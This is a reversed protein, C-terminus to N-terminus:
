GKAANKKGSIHKVEVPEAVPEPVEEKIEVPIEPKFVIAVAYGLASLELEIGGPMMRARQFTKGQAGNLANCLDNLNTVTM